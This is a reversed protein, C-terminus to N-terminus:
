NDRSPNKATDIVEVHAGKKLGVDDGHENTLKNEIRLKRYKRNSEDISIQAKEPQSPGSSPIIKDVTAPMTTSPPEVMRTTDLNLKAIRASKSIRPKAMLKEVSAQTADESAKHIKNHAM